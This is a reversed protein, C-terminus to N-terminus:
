QNYAIEFKEPPVYNLFSHLRISNDYMEIYEFVTSRVEQKTNFREHHIAEVKLSHFWSEMAANDYCDRKKSMSQTLHYKEILQVFDNSCYQRGRDSHVIVKKPYGRMALAGQLADCVLHRDIRESM